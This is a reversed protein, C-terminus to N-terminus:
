HAITLQMKLHVEFSNDAERINLQHTDPYLLELRKRVNELGIGFSSLNVENNGPQYSNRCYFDLSGEESLQIKIDISINDSQFEQSHKFANEIFVILILPAIQYESPIDQSKFTVLGRDEIQLQNLRTFNELQEIEKALLVYKEQCEYLMYRLVSSLELIISPTKPSNEIAYSYLNNLNNFLFHPNIQSKLFQLESREVTAKLEDVEQQKQLADWAFKFGTLIVMIPLIDIFPYLVGSFYKGRTDPFFIREIVLEEIIIVVAMLVLAGITFYLYRKTYFYRPLLLYNIIFAAVAYNLFFVGQHLEIQPHNKDFSYVIFVLLHLIVQFFLEKSSEWITRVRENM